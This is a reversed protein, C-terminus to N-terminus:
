NGEKKPAELWSQVFNYTEQEAESFDDLTLGFKKMTATMEKHEDTQKKTPKKVKAKSPAKEKKLKEPKKVIEVFESLEAECETCCLKLKETYLTEGKVLWMGTTGKCGEVSCEVEVLAGKKPAKLKTKKTVVTPKFEVQLRKDFVILGTQAFNLQKELKKLSKAEAHLEQVFSPPYSNKDTSSIDEPWRIAPFEKRLEALLKM